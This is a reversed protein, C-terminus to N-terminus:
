PRVALPQFSISINAEAGSLGGIWVWRSDGSTREEYRAEMTGIRVDAVKAAAPIPGLRVGYRAVPKDFGVSFTQGRETREYRYRLKQRAGDTTVPFDSISMREWKAPYRPILRLEDPRNDDIGLMLRLAKTSDAVHSDQGMYGNVPLYYRGSRHVIIGEPGTWRGFKPLYCHTVLKDIFRSADEMRDLLLAAQTMMGQGYGYMRLCDYKKDKMLHRYTNLSVDLYRRDAEDGAAYDELPTYSDGETALQIPVLKHAHDQWDCNAETHWIPGCESDDLLHDLIGQKLREALKFWRAARETEGLQEAMRIALKVGHLCNYTSYVDYAGHACESETYLVDKRIGPRITDTDLQWQIWEVSAQTAEWRRRNWEIPRGLWHWIMCRSWMCIGHGDNERVGREITGGVNVSKTQYEPWGVIRNWHPPNAEAFLARDLWDICTDVFKDYGFAMSERLLEGIGRSWAEGAGPLQGPQRTRYLAFWNQLSHFTPERDIWVGMGFTYHHLSWKATSSACRTGDDAIHSGTEPGNYYLYTAAYVAEQKGRFDYAPGFYGDPVEPEGLQPLDEVFTYLLRMIAEVGPRYGESEVWDLSVARINAAAYDGLFPLPRLGGDGAGMDASHATELTVASVLPYEHFDQAGTVRIERVKKGGLDVSFIFRANSSNSGMPRVGDVLALGDAIIDRYADIGSFMAGDFNDGGDGREYTEYHWVTDWPKGYWVNFGIILPIISGTGDTWVVTAEGVRDGAFHSYGHDGKDSYWSGNAIDINHIMGLFHATRVPVDECALRMEGDWPLLSGRDAGLELSVVSPPFFWSDYKRLSFPIGRVLLTEGEGPPAVAVFRGHPPLPRDTRLMTRIARTNRLALELKTGSSAQEGVTFDCKACVHGAQAPEFDVAQGVGDIRLGAFGAFRRDLSFGPKKDLLPDYDLEVRYNGPPLQLMQSFLTEEGESLWPERTQLRPAFGHREDRWNGTIDVDYANM